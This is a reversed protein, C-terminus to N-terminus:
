VNGALMLASLAALFMSALWQGEEKKILWRM